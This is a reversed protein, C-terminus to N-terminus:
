RRAARLAEALMRPARTLSPGYWTLHRGSVLACPLGPFAEPGDDATFRYPEDPLVVLDPAAARLETAPVRPYRDPHGAYLHDVGLRALVDGAFTDRGLVMWPRRWVPVVATTREAPEPLAAWAREAADLWGPRGPAGCATLVRDLETFAQPVRRVETVLVELGATRLADLDAARNEEENAIVLDPALSVIRDLRPNKTGGIRAVDLDAPHTCWDTAGVLAGPLTVAVAETLSPVLSVVRPM